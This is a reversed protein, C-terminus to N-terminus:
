CAKNKGHKWVQFAYWVDVNELHDQTQYRFLQMQVWMRQTNHSSLKHLVPHGWVYSPVASPSCSLWAFAQETQM